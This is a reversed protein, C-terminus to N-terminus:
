EKVPEIWWQIKGKLCDDCVIQAASDLNPGNKGMLGFKRAVHVLLDKAPNIYRNGEIPRVLAPIEYLKEVQTYYETPLINLFRLLHQITEM